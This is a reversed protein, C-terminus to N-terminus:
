NYVITKLFNYVIKKVVSQGLLVGFQAARKFNHFIVSFEKTLRNKIFFFAMPLLVKKFEPFFHRNIKCGTMGSLLGVSVMM